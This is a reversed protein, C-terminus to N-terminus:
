SQRGAAVQGRVVARVEEGDGGVRHPLDQDLTRPRTMRGLAAAMALAHREVFGHQGAGLGVEVHQCDVRREFLEGREVGFLGPSTSSRYKPPRLTSSVASASPM